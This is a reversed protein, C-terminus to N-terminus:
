NMFLLLETIKLLMHTLINGRLFPHILMESDEDFLFFDSGTIQDNMKSFLNELNSLMEKKRRNVEVDIDDIYV